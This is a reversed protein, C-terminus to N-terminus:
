NGPRPDIPTIRGLDLVDELLKAAALLRVEGRCPAAIQIGVPLKERTFGAPISIAPSAVNTFAYVIALWDIYTSFRHGNCETVYRQEVPFPAVITAPCLILDYHTFFERMRKFMAGRQMEARAIEAVSLALGKEINWIVDPKLKDRHNEYLSKLGTAYSLARLVQFCEHAEKLDPHAEEVIVGADALKFAAREVIEAVEPDVPTIGLDRSFAIRKPKEGSRAAALYSVDERPLSLPDAPDAGVMADFLLALDEVNRAMPGEAGLTGDIKAHVSAAVRGPSPRMGVVGCFSAPNRLSGGMDSGHAVWAMGTALAVAAGGSSGAASRKLNWPNLTRGFVENFTNAGSGFEPTNSLAYVIGGQDELNEVLIDSASAIHDAFIPSGQTSRVGKVDNLDKIPIPLGALRGRESISKNMLARAQDRARDFCLTPLANVAKDVESIRKELSGLCDLPTIEGKRLLSVIENATLRILDTM